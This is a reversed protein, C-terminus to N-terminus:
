RRRSRVYFLWALVAVPIALLYYFFTKRYFPPEAIRQIRTHETREDIDRIIFKSKPNAHAVDFVDKPIPENVSKWSFEFIRERTFEPADTCLMLKEPVACLGLNTWSVDVWMPKNVGDTSEAHIVKAGPDQFRLVFNMAADPFPGIKVVSNNGDIATLSHKFKTDQYARTLEELTYRHAFEVELGLGASRVDFFQMYGLVKEESVVLVDSDWTSVFYGDSNKIAVLENGADTKSDFRFSEGDKWYEIRRVEEVWKDANSDSDIHSMVRTNYIVTLHWSKLKQRENLVAEWFTRYELDSDNVLDNSLLRSNSEQACIAGPIHLVEVFLLVFLFRDMISMSKFFDDTSCILRFRM